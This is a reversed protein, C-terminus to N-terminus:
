IQEMAWSLHLNAAVAAIIIVIRQGENYEYGQGGIFSYQTGGAAPAPVVVNRIMQTWAINDPDQSYISITIPLGADFNMALRMLRFNGPPTIFITAGPTCDIVPEDGQWTAIQVKSSASRQQRAM